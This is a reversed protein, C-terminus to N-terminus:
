PAAGYRQGCYRLWQGHSRAPEVVLCVPLHPVCAGALDTGNGDGYMMVASQDHVLVSILVFWDATGIEDLHSAVADTLWYAGAADALYKVGDTIWCRRSICYYNSTGTFQLLESADFEDM